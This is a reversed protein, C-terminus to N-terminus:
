SSTPSYSFGCASLFRVRDFNPNMLAFDDALDNALTRLTVVTDPMEAANKASRVALAIKVYDRRTMTERM